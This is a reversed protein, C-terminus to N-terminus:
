ARDYRTRRARDRSPGTTTARARRLGRITGRSTGRGGGPPSARVILHARAAAAPSAAAAPTAARTTSFAPSGAGRTAGSIAVKDGGILAEAILGIKPDPDFLADMVIRADKPSLGTKIALKDTLEAKNM